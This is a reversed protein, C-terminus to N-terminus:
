SFRLALFCVTGRKQAAGPTGFDFLGHKKETKQGEVPGPADGLLALADFLLCNWVKARRGADWLRFVRHKQTKQGEVSGLPDGLLVSASLFLCNWAKARGQPGSTSFGQTKQTNEEQASGLPDGLLASVDFILCNWM